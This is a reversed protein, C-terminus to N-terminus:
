NSQFFTYNPHSLTSNPQYRTENVVEFDSFFFQKLYRYRTLFISVQKQTGFLVCIEVIGEYLNM